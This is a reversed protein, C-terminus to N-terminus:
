EHKQEKIVQLQKQQERRVAELKKLVNERTPQIPTHTGREWKQWTSINVHCIIAAEMQTLNAILRLTKLQGAFPQTMPKGLIEDIPSTM